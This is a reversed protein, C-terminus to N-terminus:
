DNKSVSITRTFDNIEEFVLEYVPKELASKINQWWEIVFLNDPNAFDDDLKLTNFEKSSKLRYADIHKVTKFQYFNDGLDYERM